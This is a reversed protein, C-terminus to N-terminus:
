LTHSFSKPLGPDILLIKKVEAVWQNEAMLFAGYSWLFVISGPGEWRPRAAQVPSLQKKRNLALSHVRAESVRPKNFSCMPKNFCCCTLSVVHRQVNPTHTHTKGAKYLKNHIQKAYYKVHFM